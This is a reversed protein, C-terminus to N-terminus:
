ELFSKEKIVLLREYINCPSIHFGEIIMAHHGICIDRQKINQLFLVFLPYQHHNREEQHKKTWTSLLLFSAFCLQHIVKHMVIDHAYLTLVFQIQNGMFDLYYRPHSIFHYDEGNKLLDYRWSKWIQLQRMVSHYMDLFHPYPALITM